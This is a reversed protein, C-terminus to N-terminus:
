KYNMVLVENIKGRGTGVSNISRSASVIQIRFAKYLDLIFDTASNSLMVQCGKKDLEVFVDMLREQEDKGFGGMSYSTFSSTDSVPDYPPDLYVFDGENAGELAEEFDMDLIEVKNESLYSSVARLVEENVINPNKYKGFPVNFHGKKNVRYLGNFCTKNLYITRSAREVPSLLKYEEKLDWDRMEYFYLKDNEHKSLNAILEEVSDRVVTYCNCLDPNIDNIVAHSPQIEFLVAGGGVFPEFYNNFKRPMHANIDLLLQKKGGAWKLFPKATMYRKM